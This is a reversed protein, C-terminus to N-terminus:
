FDIKNKDWTTIFTEKRSIQYYEWTNHMIEDWIIDQSELHCQEHNGLCILDSLPWNLLSKVGQESHVRLPLKHLCWMDCTKSLTRLVPKHVMDIALNPLKNSIVITSEELM